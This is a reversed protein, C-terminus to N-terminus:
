PKIYLNPPSRNLGFQTDNKKTGRFETRALSLTSRKSTASNFLHPRHQLIAALARDHEEEGLNLKQRLQQLVEKGELFKPFFIFRVFGNGLKM